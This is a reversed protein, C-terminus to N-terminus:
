RHFIEGFAVEHSRTITPIICMYTRPQKQRTWHVVFVGLHPESIEPVIGDHRVQELGDAVFNLHSPTSKTQLTRQKLINQLDSALQTLNLKEASASSKASYRTRPIKDYKSHNRIFTTAVNISISKIM